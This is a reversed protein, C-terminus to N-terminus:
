VARCLKHAAKGPCGLSSPCVCSGSPVAAGLATGECEGLLLLLLLGCRSARARARVWQCHGARHSSGGGGDHARVRLAYTPSPTSTSTCTSAYPLHWWPVCRWRPRTGQLNGGHAQGRHIIIVSCPPLTVLLVLGQGSTCARACTTTIVTIVFPAHCCHSRAPTAQELRGQTRATGLALGGATTAWSPTSSAGHGSSCRAHTGGGVQRGSSAEGAGLGLSQLCQVTSVM